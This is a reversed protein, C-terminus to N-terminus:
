KFSVTLLSALLCKKQSTYLSLSLCPLNWRPFLCLLARTRSKPVHMTLVTGSNGRCAHLTSGENEMGKMKSNVRACYSLSHGLGGGSVVRVVM